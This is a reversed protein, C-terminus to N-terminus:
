PQPPEAPPAKESVAPEEHPPPTENEKKTEEGEKLDKKAEAAAKDDASKEPEPNDTLWVKAEENGREGALAYLRRAEVPDAEVGKGEEYRQALDFAADASGDEIRQKLFTVVRDEVGVQAAKNRQNAAAENAAIQAKTSSTPAAAAPAPASTAPATGTAKDLSRRVRGISQASSPAIVAPALLAVTILSLFPTKM